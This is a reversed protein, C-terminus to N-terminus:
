RRFDAERYGQRSLWESLTDRGNGMMYRVYENRKKMLLEKHMLAIDPMIVLNKGPMYIYEKKGATMGSGIHIPSRATLKMTYHKLYDQM